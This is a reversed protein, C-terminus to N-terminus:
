GRIAPTFQRRPSAVELSERDLSDFAEVLSELPALALRLCRAEADSMARYADALARNQADIENEFESLSAM